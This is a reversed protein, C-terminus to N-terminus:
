IDRHTYIYICIIYMYIYYKWIQGYREMWSSWRSCWCSCWRGTMASSGTVLTEGPRSKYRRHSQGLPRRPWPIVPSRSAARAATEPLDQVPLQQRNPSLFPIGHTHGYVTRGGFFDWLKSAPKGWSNGAIQSSARILQWVTSEIQVSTYVQMTVSCLVSKVHSLVASIRTLSTTMSQWLPQTDM